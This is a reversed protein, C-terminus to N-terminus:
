YQRSTWSCLISYVDETSFINPCLRCARKFTRTSLVPAQLPTVFIQRLVAALCSLSIVYTWLFTRPSLLTAVKRPRPM